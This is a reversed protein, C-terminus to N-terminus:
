SPTPLLFVAIALTLIVEAELFEKVTLSFSKMGSFSFVIKDGKKAKVSYTGAADTTTVADLSQLTVGQLLKGTLKSTVTGAVQKIQANTIVALLLLTILCSLKQM